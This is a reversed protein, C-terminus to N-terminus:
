TFLPNSNLGINISHYRVTGNKMNAQEGQSIFRHILFNTNHHFNQPVNVSAVCKEPFYSGYVANAVM